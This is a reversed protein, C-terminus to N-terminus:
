VTFYDTDSRFNRVNKVSVYEAALPRVIYVFQWDPENEILPETCQKECCTTTLLHKRRLRSFIQRLKHQRKQFFTFRKWLIVDSSRLRATAVVM